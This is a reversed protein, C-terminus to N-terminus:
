YKCCYGDSRALAWLPRTFAGIPRGVSVNLYLADALEADAEHLSRLGEDSVVVHKEATNIVRM